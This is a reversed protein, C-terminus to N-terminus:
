RGASTSSIVRNGQISFLSDATARKGNKGAYSYKV